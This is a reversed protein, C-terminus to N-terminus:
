AAHGKDQRYRAFWMMGLAAFALGPVGSGLVPGPVASIDIGGNFSGAGSSTIIYHADASFTSGLFASAFLDTSASNGTFVPTASLPNGNITTKEQVTWGNTLGTVSFESELPTLANPGTLGNATIDLVLTHAGTATQAVDLMNTALLEGAALFSQSNITVTNLNFAGFSVDPINLTGDASNTTNVVTNDLTAVFSITDAVAASSLLM